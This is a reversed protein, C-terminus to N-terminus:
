GIRDIIIRFLIAIIFVLAGIALVIGAFLNRAGEEGMFDLVFLTSVVLLLIVWAVEFRVGKKM